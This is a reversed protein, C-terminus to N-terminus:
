SIGCDGLERATWTRELREFALQFGVAIDIGGGFAFFNTLRLKFTLPELDLIFPQSRLGPIKFQKM